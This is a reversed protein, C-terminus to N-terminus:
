SEGSGTDASASETLPSSPAAVSRSVVAPSTSSSPPLRWESVSVAAPGIRAM